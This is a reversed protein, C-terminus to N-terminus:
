QQMAAYLSTISSAGIMSLDAKPASIVKTTVDTLLLTLGALEVSLTRPRADHCASMNGVQLM